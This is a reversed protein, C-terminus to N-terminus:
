DEGYNLPILGKVGNRRQLRPLLAM